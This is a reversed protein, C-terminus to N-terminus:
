EVPAGAKFIMNGKFVTDTQINVGQPNPAAAPTEPAPATEEGGWVSNAPETAVLKRVYVDDVLVYDSAGLSVGHVHSTLSGGATTADTVTRVSAGNIFAEMSSGVANVKMAYWTDAAVPGYVTGISTWAGSAFRFFGGDSASNQNRWAYGSNFTLGDTRWGMQHIKRNAGGGLYTRYNLSFDTLSLTTVYCRTDFYSNKTQTSDPDHRLAGSVITIKDTNEADITWKSLDGSFDDFFLFTNSGNSASTSQGANGYYIYIDQNETSLDAAVQVWFVANDSDTKSEQWYDLLTSGDSATFMIDAFDTRSHSDLYVDGGSDSGSGYHATIKVQYNTGAGTAANITHPKRYTWSSNYWPDLLGYGGRDGLAELWFEGKSGPYYKIEARFYNTEGPLVAFRAGGKVELGAPIPKRKALARSLITDNIIINGRSVDLDQWKGGDWKQINEVEGNFRSFYALFVANEEQDGINTVSLYVESGNFDSYTKKDSKIILTEGQNDDTFPFSINLDSIKLPPVSLGINTETIDKFVQVPDGATKSFNFYLLGGTLSIM